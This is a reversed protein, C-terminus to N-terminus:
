LSSYFSPAENKLNRAAGANFVLLGPTINVSVPDVNAGSSANKWVSDDGDYYYSTFGGAGNPIYFVDAGVSSGFGQNMTAINNNYSSSLTAGAPYVSSLYNFGSSVVQIVSELLVEGSVTIDIPNAAFILVGDLYVLPVDAAVVNAGSSANKWVTDDGDYYYSNFGGSGNPVYVVDAGVSSGFGPSINASNEAGFISALTASERIKYKDGAAAGAAVLDNPTTITGTSIASGLVESVAGSATATEVEVIYTKGSTVLSQLNVDNDTVASTTVTELTGAALTANHLRLGIYNFGSALAITEYGVPTTKATTQAFLAGPALLALALLSKISKPKM